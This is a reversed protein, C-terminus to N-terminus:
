QANEASGLRAAITVIPLFEGIEEGTKSETTMKVCKEKLFEYNRTTAFSQRFKMKDVDLLDRFINHALSQHKFARKLRCAVAGKGSCDIGKTAWHVYGEAGTTYEHVHVYM